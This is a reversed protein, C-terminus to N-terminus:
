SPPRRMPHTERIRDANGICGLKNSATMVPLVRLWKVAEPVLPPDLKVKGILGYDIEETLYPFLEKLKEQPVGHQIMQVLFKEMTGQSDALGLFGFIKVILMSDRIHWPEPKYGLLRFEHAPKNESLYLNCGAAYADLQRRHDPKLRGIESEPDPLFNMRRMYKDIEILTPAGKLHEAAKGQLLIRSLLM